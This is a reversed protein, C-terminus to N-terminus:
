VYLYLHLHLYRKCPELVEPKDRIEKPWDRLGLTGKDAELFVNANILSTGGLGNCVVANQGRGFILHFMGTPKGTEIPKSPFFLGPAVQGSTHVEKLAETTTVPYEGPWKEEGRELLCVRQGARAMRSAAVGGGYGSGIVVVDYSSRMLELPKSIRPFQPTRADDAYTRIKAFSRSRPGGSEDEHPGFSPIRHSRDEKSHPAPETASRFLRASGNRRQRLGANHQFPDSGCQSTPEPSPHPRPRGGSSSSDDDHHKDCRPNPSSSSSAVTSSQASQREPTPSHNHVGNALFNNPLGNADGASMKHHYGNTTPPTTPREDVIVSPSM